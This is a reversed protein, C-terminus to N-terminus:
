NKLELKINFNFKGRWEGPFIDKEIQIKGTIVTFPSGIARITLDYGLSDEKFSTKEQIISADM